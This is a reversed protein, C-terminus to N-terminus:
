LIPSKIGESPQPTPLSGLSSRSRCTHCLGAHGYLLLGKCRGNQLAFVGRGQRPGERGQFLPASVERAPSRAISPIRRPRKAGAAATGYSPLTAGSRPAWGVEGGPASPPRPAPSPRFTGPAAAREPPLFRARSVPAAMMAAHPSALVAGPAAPRSAPRLPRSRLPLAPPPLHRGAEGGRVSGTGEM